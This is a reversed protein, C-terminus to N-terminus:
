SDCPLTPLLSCCGGCSPATRVLWFGASLSPLTISALSGIFLNVLFTALIGAVVQADYAQVVFSLPGTLFAMGAQGLLANRLGQNFAAYIMCVIVLAYVINVILYARKNEQLLVWASTILNKM